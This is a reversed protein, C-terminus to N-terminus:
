IGLDDDHHANNADHADPVDRSDDCNQHSHDVCVMQVGCDDIQYHHDNLVGDFQNRILVM